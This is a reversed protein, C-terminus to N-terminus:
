RLSGRYIGQVFTKNGTITLYLDLSCPTLHSTLTFGGDRLIIHLTDDIRIIKTVKSFEPLYRKRGDINIFFVGDNQTLEIKLPDFRDLLKQVTVTM